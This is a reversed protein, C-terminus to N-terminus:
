AHPLSYQKHFGDQLPPKPWTEMDTISEIFIGLFDLSLGLMVAKDAFGDKLLHHLINKSKM